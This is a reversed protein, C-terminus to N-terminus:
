GILEVKSKATPPTDVEDALNATRFIFEPVGVALMEALEPAFAVVRVPVPTNPVVFMCVKVSPVEVVPSILKTMPALLLKLILPVAPAVTEEAAQTVVVLPTTVPDVAQSRPM